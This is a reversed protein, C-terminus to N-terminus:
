NKLYCLFNFYATKNSSVESPRGAFQVGSNIVFLWKAGKESGNWLCLTQMVDMDDPSAPDHPTAYPIRLRMCHQIKTKVVIKM